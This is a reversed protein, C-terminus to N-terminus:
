AILTNKFRVRKIETSGDTSDMEFDAQFDVRLRDSLTHLHRYLAQSNKWRFNVKRASAMGSLVQYIQQFTRWEAADAPNLSIWEELLSIAQSSERLQRMQSDVMSLLGNSLAEGDIGEIGKLKACFVNFDVLRSKTPPRVVPDTKLYEVVFSLQRLLDAWIRAGYEKIRKQLVYEPLPDDLQDMELVLLRSFLTEDSFPINVATLSVFCQPIIVHRANTKYLKRLEIHSGTALKNLLDVMWYAGSKELNDIVLLRHREISARFADQKDTPVGLVDADPDELIRLIRRIATTKGSGAQGILALIPKTPMMEQFFFALIWAKLLERQEDPTAPAETSMTFSLDNVLFDWCNVPESDFDPVIQRRTQDTVFMLGCEGNHSVEIDNKGNIIYVESSGLNVYLKHEAEDWFTTNHIPVISAERIIRLRLETNVLRSFPDIPNLGFKMNTLSHWHETGEQVVMYTDKNYWYADNLNTQFVKCGDDNLMSFITNSALRSAEIKPKGKLYRIDDIQKVSDPAKMEAVLETLRQMSTVPLIEGLGQRGRITKGEKARQFTTKVTQNRNSWESDRTKDVIAKILDRTQEFGWGEQALYGCLYLSMDHRLGDTWYESILDVLQTEMAPSSDIIALVDEPRVRYQLYEMPDRDPGNEWGNDVDVFRSRDHTVPHVGLPIKLLNGKPRGKTLSDQKPFCEVHTEGSARLGEVSRVWEVIKKADGALMPESLFILIHYGKRGSFEVVHPIDTLHLLVKTAQERASDLDTSDVDWGLWKLTNSGQQLQYGGLNSSGELHESLLEVTLPEEVPRYYIDGNSKRCIAHYPNGGFIELLLNEVTNTM